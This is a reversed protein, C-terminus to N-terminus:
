LIARTTAYLLSQLFVRSEMYDHPTLSAIQSKLAAYMTNISARVQVKDDYDLTGYKAWRAAYEDLSIRDAEFSAQQLATPWYLVGSVLDIQSASLARPAAARARRALEDPTAHSGRQKERELSGIDRMNWYTQAAQVQNRMAISQAHTANVAAASTALNYEGAASLVQATGQLAAGPATQAASPGGWAGGGYGITSSAPVAPQYQLNGPLAFANGQGLTSLKAGNGPGLTSSKAAPGQGFAMVPCVILVLLVTVRNM